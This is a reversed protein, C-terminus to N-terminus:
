GKVIIQPDGRHRPPKQASSNKATAPKPTSKKAAKKASKM